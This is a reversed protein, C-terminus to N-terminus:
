VRVDLRGATALLETNLTKAISAAAVLANLAGVPPPPSAPAPAQVPTASVGTISM